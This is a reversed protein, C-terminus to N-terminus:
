QRRWKTHMARWLAAAAERLTLARGQLTKRWRAEEEPTMARAGLHRLPM